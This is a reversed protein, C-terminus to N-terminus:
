NYGPKKHVCLVIQFTILQHFIHRNPDLNDSNTIPNIVIPKIVKKKRERERKREMNSKQNQSKNIIKSSKKTLENKFPSDLMFFLLLLLRLLLLLLLPLLLLLVDASSCGIVCRRDSSDVPGFHSVPPGRCMEQGVNDIM